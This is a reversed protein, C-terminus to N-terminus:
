LIQMTTVNACVVGPAKLELAANYFHKRVADKSCPKACSYLTIQKIEDAWKVITININNM